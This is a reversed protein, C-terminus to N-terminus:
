IEVIEKNVHDELHSKEDIWTSISLYTEIQRITPTEYIKAISITQSYKHKIENALSAIQLSDGGLQFFNDDIGIPSVKLLQEWIACLQIQLETEPLARAEVSSSREVQEILRTKDTKGSSNIPFTDVPVFLTPVMYIPLKSVTLARLAQQARPEDVQPEIYKIFATIATGKETDLAFCVAKDVLESTDLVNSVETLNIRYGNIKEISDRRGVYQILGGSTTKVLDGTFYERVGNRSQFANSAGDVYGLGVNVGSLVLEGTVGNAVPQGDLGRIDAWTNSLPTGIYPIAGTVRCYLSNVCCETPGYLNFAFKGTASQWSVLTDWLAQTIEEGGIMLNPLSPGFETNLWKEIFSPTCDLITVENDVLARKFSTECAKVDDTLIHIRKGSYLQALSQLSADFSFSALAGWTDNESSIVENNALNLILNHLSSYAIKAGKPVGTSGSTYLIYALRSSDLSLPVLTLTNDCNGSAVNTLGVEEVVNNKAGIVFKLAAEKVIYELRAKPLSEDLPLFAAGINLLALINIFYEISRHTSVAVTDGYNIGARLLLESTYAICKALEEYTISTHSDSLAIQSPRESAWKTVQAVLDVAQESLSVSSSFRGTYVHKALLKDQLSVELDNLVAEVTSEYSAHLEAVIEHSLLSEDYTWALQTSPANLEVHLSLDFKTQAGRLNENHIKKYNIGINTPVEEHLSFALQFIPNGGASRVPNLRSVIYEFPVQQHEFASLLQEKVRGLLDTFRDLTSLKTRVPLPNAFFGITNNFKSEKRGSAAVGIVVDDVNSYKALVVAYIAYFFMFKTINLQLCLEDVRSLGDTPLKEVYYSASKTHSCPTHALPLNHKSPAGSLETVWYDVAQEGSKSKLWAKQWCAFDRYQLYQNNVTTLERNEIALYTQFFDSLFVGLSWGDFIIHHFKFVIVYKSPTLTIIAVKFLPAQNLLFTSKALETLLKDLESTQEADSFRTLDFMSVPVREVLCVKQMPKADEIFMSTRLIEHKHMMAGLARKVYDICLAHQVEFVSSMVYNDVAGKQLEDTLLLSSQNHSAPYIGTASTSSLQGNLQEGELMTEKQKLLEVVALKNEILLQRLTDDLADKSKFALRGDKLYLLVGESSCKKIISLADM